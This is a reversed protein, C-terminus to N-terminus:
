NIVSGMNFVPLYLALIMIGIIGGLFVIMLPEIMKILGAVLNNLNDEYYSTLKEFSNEMNGSEEGIQVMNCALVPFVKSDELGKSFSKGKTVYDKAKKVGRQLDDHEAINEAVNLADLFNVGAKLLSCFSRFFRVLASQYMIKRFLPILTIVSLINKKGGDTKAYQFLATPIGILFALVVIPNGRLTNSISVFIQTLFPLTGGSGSYMKEFQPVVFWIIGMIIAFSICLVVIPYMLASKVKSKTQEAKEMYNALDQLVQDMLGTEEACVIMNVYFGDFIGPYARLASSFKKGSELQKVTRRLVSKLEANKGVTKVCMELSQILSIGSSLLFSLQRTLFLVDTTKIKSGGGLFPILPQEKIYIPDINKSKLQFKAYQVNKASIKGSIIKGNKEVNYVFVPM